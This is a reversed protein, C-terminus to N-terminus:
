LNPERRPPANRSGGPRDEVETKEEQIIEVLMQQRDVWHSKRVDGEKTLGQPQIEYRECGNLYEIRAVAVGELGTMKDKVRSGLKIM